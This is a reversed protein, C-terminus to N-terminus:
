RSSMMLTRQEVAHVPISRTEVGQQEVTTLHLQQDANTFRLSSNGTASAPAAPTSLVMAGKGGGQVFIVGTDTQKIVYEGAAFQQSGVVFAFPVNVRMYEAASAASSFAGLALAGFVGITKFIKM